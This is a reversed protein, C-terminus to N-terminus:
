FVILNFCFYPHTWHILYFLFLMKGLVLILLDKNFIFKHYASHFKCTLPIDINQLFDYSWVDKNHFQKQVFELQEM